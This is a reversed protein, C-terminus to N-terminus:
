NFVNIDIFYAGLPRNLKQPLTGPLAYVKCDFPRLGVVPKACLTGKNGNTPVRLSGESVVDCLSEEGLSNNIGITAIVTMMMVMTSVMMVMMTMMMMLMEVVVLVAM